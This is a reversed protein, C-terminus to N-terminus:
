CSCGSILDYHYPDGPYNAWRLCYSAAQSAVANYNSINGIDVATGSTHRSTAGVTGCNQLSHMEAERRVDDKLQACAPDTSSRLGQLCWKEHIQRLHTQYEQPRYASTIRGRVSNAFREACTRLRPDTNQWVLATGDSAEMSQAWVDTFPPNSLPQISTCAVGGTPPATPTTPAQLPAAGGPKCLIENWPGWGTGQQDYLNRMVTDVVLWACLIILIGILTNTFIHHAKSINGPNAPSFLYLVGANVFLLTALLTSFFVFFNLINMGLKVIDCVKCMEQGEGGCQVIEPPLGQAFVDPIATYFLGLLLFVFLLGQAFKM